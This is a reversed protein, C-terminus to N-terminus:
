NIQHFARAGANLLASFGRQGRRPLRAVLKVVLLPNRTIPYGFLM